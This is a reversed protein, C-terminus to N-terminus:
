AAAVKQRAEACRSDISRRVYESEMVSRCNPWGEGVLTREVSRWGDHLGSDALAYARDRVRRCREDEWHLM